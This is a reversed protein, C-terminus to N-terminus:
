ATSKGNAASVSQRLEGWSSLFPKHLDAPSVLLQSFDATRCAQPHPRLLSSFLSTGLPTLSAAPTLAGLLTLLGEAQGLAAPPPPDLWPVRTGRPDGWSALALVVECLDACQMEPPSQPSLKNDGAKGWLRYCM